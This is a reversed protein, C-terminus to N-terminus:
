RCGSENAKPSSLLGLEFGLDKAGGNVIHSMYSVGKRCAAVGALRSRGLRGGQRSGAVSRKLRLTAHNDAHLELIERQFPANIKSWDLCKPVSLLGTQWFWSPYRPMGDDAM